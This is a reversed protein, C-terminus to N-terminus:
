KAGVKYSIGMSSTIFINKIFEGKITEPKEKKVSDIFHNYNELLKKM